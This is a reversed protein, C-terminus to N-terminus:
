PTKEQLRSTIHTRLLAATALGYYTYEVDAEMDGMWGRFGGDPSAMERVFRAIGALDARELAGLTMLAILGTFTSLLDAAPATKHNKLGGDPTQMSLLFDTAADAEIEQLRGLLALSSVAAATANTQSKRHGHKQRFGGDPQQMDLIFPVAIHGYLRGMGQMERCLLRIFVIEASDDPEWDMDDGADILKNLVSNSFRVGRGRLMRVLSLLSFTHVVGEPWRVYHSLHRFVAQADFERDLLALGRVAFETYYLDATKGRGRFGGDRTQRSTIFRAHLDRFEQSFQAAGPKLVLDLTDLFSSEFPIM